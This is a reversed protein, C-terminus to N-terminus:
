GEKKVKFGKELFVAAIKSFTSNDMTPVDAYKYELGMAEYKGSGLYFLKHDCMECHIPKNNLLYRELDLKEKGYDNDKKYMLSVEKRIKTILNYRIQPPKEIFNSYIKDKRINELRLSYVQVFRRLLGKMRRCGNWM